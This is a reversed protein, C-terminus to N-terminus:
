ARALLGPSAVAPWEAEDPADASGTGLFTQTAEYGRQILEPTRTFDFCGHGAPTALPLKVVQCEARDVVGSQQNRTMLGVVFMLTEAINAPPRGLSSEPGADLVIVSKAGMSVAQRVPVNATVGGDFYHADGITVRPFCGPIASSALLAPEVLGNRLLEPRGTGANTVVAGFPVALESFTPAPLHTRILRVLSSQEFLHRRNRALTVLSRVTLNGLIDSRDLGLWIDKLRDGASEPHGALVVGNIAGVSTGVVLDPVIGAEALARLMGAQVSGGAAGGSLVFALPRPMDALASVGGPLQQAESMYIIPVSSHSM